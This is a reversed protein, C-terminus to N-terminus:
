NGCLYSQQSTALGDTLVLINSTTYMQTFQNVNPLSSWYTSNDRSSVLSPQREWVVYPGASHDPANCPTVINGALNSLCDGQLQHLYTQAHATDKLLIAVQITYNVVTGIAASATCSASGASFANTGQTCIRREHSPYLNFQAVYGTLPNGATQNLLPNFALANPLLHNGKLETIINIPVTNTPTPVYNPNLTGPTVAATTPNTSGYCNQRYYKAMAQMITDINERVASADADNRWIRYQRISMYSISMGIVIVLLLEPLSLGRQQTKNFRM